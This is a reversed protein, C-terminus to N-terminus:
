KTCFCIISNKPLEPCLEKPKKDKVVDTVPELTGKPRPVASGGGMAPFMFQCHKWLILLREVFATIICRSNYTTDM